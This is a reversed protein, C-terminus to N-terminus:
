QVLSVSYSIVCITASRSRILLSRILSLVVVVVVIFLDDIIFYFEKCRKGIILIVISFNSFASQNDLLKKIEFGQTFYRM